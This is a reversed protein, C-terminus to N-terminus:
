RTADRVAERAATAQWCAAEDEPLVCGDPKACGHGNVGPCGAYEALRQALWEARANADRAITALETLAAEPHLAHWPDACTPGDAEVDWSIVPRIGRYRPRQGCSPCDQWGAAIEADLEEIRDTM